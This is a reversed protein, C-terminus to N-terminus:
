VAKVHSPVRLLLYILIRRQYQSPLPPPPSVLGEGPAFAQLLNLVKVTTTENSSFCDRSVFSRFVLYMQDLMLM